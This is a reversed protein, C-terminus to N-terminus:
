VSTPMSGNLHHRLQDAQERTLGALISEIQDPNSLDAANAPALLHAARAVRANVVSDASAYHKATMAFSTHGLARAVAESTAGEEIALTAHLGRLSHPCVRPVGARQCYVRVKLWWYGRAPAHGQVSFLLETPAKGEVLSRLLPKLWAPVRVRRRSSQTKGFPIMLVQGEADVDRVIRASVEGQRLGLHLLMLVGIAARDGAAAQKLLYDNFRRAEDLTHQLKGAKRKGIPEVQAFPNSLLLGAKVCWKAWTKAMLLVGQHTNPSLPKGNHKNPRNAYETYLRGAKGPTLSALPWDFPLFTRLQRIEDSASQPKVGRVTLRYTQYEDISEGIFKKKKALMESLLKAKVEEAEALTKFVMATRHGSEVTVLRWKDRDPYPGFISLSQPTRALDRRAKRLKSTLAKKRRSGDTQHNMSHDKRETQM